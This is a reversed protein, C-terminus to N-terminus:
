DDKKEGSLRDSNEKICKSIDDVIQKVKEGLIILEQCAAQNTSVELVRQDISIIYENTKTSLGEVKSLLQKDFCVKCLISSKRLEECSQELNNRALLLEPQQFVYDLALGERICETIGKHIVNTNQDIQALQLIITDLCENYRKSFTEYNAIQKNLIQKYEELKKDLSYQLANDVYTEARKKISRLIILSIGLTGGLSTIISTLFTLWDM